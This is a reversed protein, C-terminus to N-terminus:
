MLYPLFKYLVEVVIFLNLCVRNATMLADTQVYLSQQVNSNLIRCLGWSTVHTSALRIVWRLLRWTDSQRLRKLHHRIPMVPMLLLRTMSSPQLKEPSLTPKRIPPYFTTQWSNISWSITSYINANRVSAINHHTSSTEKRVVNMYVCCVIMGDIITVSLSDVWRWVDDYAIIDPYALIHHDVLARVDRITADDACSCQNILFKICRVCDNRTNRRFYDLMVDAPTM